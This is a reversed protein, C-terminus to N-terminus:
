QKYTCKSHYNRRIEYNFGSRIDSQTYTDWFDNIPAVITAKPVLKGSSDVPTSETLFPCESRANLLMMPLQKIFKVNIRPIERIAVGKRTSMSAKESRITKENIVLRTRHYKIDLSLIPLRSPITKSTM